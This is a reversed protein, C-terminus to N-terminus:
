YLTKLLNTFKKLSGKYIFWQCLLIIYLLITSKACSPSNLFCSSPNFTLVINNGTKLILIHKSEDLSSMWHVYLLATTNSYVNLTCIILSNYQHLIQAYCLYRCQFNPWLITNYGKELVWHYFGEIDSIQAIIGYERMWHYM